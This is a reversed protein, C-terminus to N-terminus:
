INLIWLTDKIDELNYTLIDKPRASVHETAIGLIPVIKRNNKLRNM